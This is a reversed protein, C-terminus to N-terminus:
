YKERIGHSALSEQEQPINLHNGTKREQTYEHAHGHRQTPTCANVYMHMHVHLSSTLTM